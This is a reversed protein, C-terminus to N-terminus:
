IIELLANKEASPKHQKIIPKKKKSEGSVSQSREEVYKEYHVKLIDLENLWMQQITTSKIQELEAEKDGHEKILKNVNEQTVSDMPMKTLYKFEVDNENELIDYGKSILMDIVQQKTKKRLDVSGDLVEKIYKAKNSLVVLEKTLVDIMHNKRKEYLELRTVSYDDIIEQVSDYKKLKDKADFLHM